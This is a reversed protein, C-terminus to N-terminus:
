GKKLGILFGIFFGAIPVNLSTESLSSIIQSVNFTQLLKEYYIKIVGINALYILSAIYLGLLILFLKFVKKLAYGLAYGALGGIGFQIILNTIQSQAYM